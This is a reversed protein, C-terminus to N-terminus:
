CASILRAYGQTWVRSVTKIRLRYNEERAVGVWSKGEENVDGFFEELLQAEKTDLPPLDSRLLTGDKRLSEDLEIEPSSSTLGSAVILPVNHDLSRLPYGDM